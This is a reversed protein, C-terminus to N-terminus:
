RGDGVGGASIPTQQARGCNGLTQILARNVAVGITTDVSPADRRCNLLGAFQTMWYREYANLDGPPVSSQLVHARVEFGQSLQSAIWNHLYTVPKLRAELLHQSLRVFSPKTTQGVYRPRGDATSYLCYICSL